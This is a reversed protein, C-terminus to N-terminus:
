LRRKKKKWELREPHRQSSLVNKEKGGTGGAQASGKGTPGGRAMGKSDKLSLQLGLHEVCPSRGSPVQEQVARLVNKEKEHLSRRSDTDARGSVVLDQSSEQIDKDSPHKNCIQVNKFPKVDSTLLEQTVWEHPGAAGLSAPSHSCPVAESSDPSHDPKCPPLHIEHEQQWGAKTPHSPCMGPM